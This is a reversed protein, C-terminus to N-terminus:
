ISLTHNSVISVSLIKQKSENTLEVLPLRVKELSPKSNLLSLIFKVPSPNTEIFCYKILPKLSYFETQAKILNGNIYNNVMSIMYKPAINSVVSIVGVGGISLIPLTLIDDGSYIKLDPVLEHIMIAQEISGSAEKIAQVRPSIDVIRKVTIPDINVGCRSPINYIIINKDTADILYKFHQFIGEQTPKNYSPQSIMIYDAYKSIEKIEHTLMHTNNGGIGIIITLKEHFNDYVYSSLEIMEKNNLTPAESTTGLIVISQIGSNYQEMIHTYISKYDITYDDNFFTPIVTIVNSLSM